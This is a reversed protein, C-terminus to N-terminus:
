QGYPHPATGSSQSRSPQQLLRLLRLSQSRGDRVPVPELRQLAREKIACPREVVEGATHQEIDHGVASLAQPLRAHRGGPILVALAEGVHGLHLGRNRQATAADIRHRQPSQQATMCAHMCAASGSPVAHIISRYRATHHLMQLRAPTPPFYAPMLITHHMTHHLCADIRSAHCLIGRPTVPQYLRVGALLEHRGHGSGGSGQPAGVDLAQSTQRHLAPVPHLFGQGHQCIVCLAFRRLQRRLVDVGIHTLSLPLRRRRRSLAPAPMAQM